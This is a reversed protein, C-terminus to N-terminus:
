VGSKLYAYILPGALALVKIMVPHLTHTVPDYFSLFHPLELINNKKKLNDLVLSVIRYRPIIQSKQDSTLLGVSFIVM